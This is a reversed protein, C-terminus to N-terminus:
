TTLKGDYTTFLSLVLVSVLLADVYERRPEDEGLVAARVVRRGVAAAPPRDAGGPAHRVPEAARPGDVQLHIGTGLGPAPPVAGHVVVLRAVGRTRLFVDDLRKARGRLDLDTRTNRVVAILPISRGPYALRDPKLDRLTPHAIYM